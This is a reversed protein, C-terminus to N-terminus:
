QTSENPIPETVPNSAPSPNQLSVVSESILQHATQLHNEATIFTEKVSTWNAIPTASTVAASVDNDISSMSQKAQYLLYNTIDLNEEAFSVDVESQDFKGIRTEIRANIQELRAITSEIRNSVNAALNIIRQQRAPTLAVEQTAPAPTTDVVAPPEDAAVPLQTTDPSTTSEATTIPEAEMMEQARAESAILACTAILSTIVLSVFSINTLSNRFFKQVMYLPREIGNM